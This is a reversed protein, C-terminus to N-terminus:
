TTAQLSEQNRTEDKQGEIQSEIWRRLASEPIRVKAGIRIAPIQGARIARYLAQESMRALPAVEPVTLLIEMIAGKSVLEIGCAALYLLRCQTFLVSNPKRPRGRREGILELGIKEAFRLRGMRIATEDEIGAANAIAADTMGAIYLALWAANDVERGPRFEKIDRFISHLFHRKHYESITARIRPDTRLRGSLEDESLYRFPEDVGFFHIRLPPPQMRMMDTAMDRWVESEIEPIIEKAPELALQLRMHDLASEALKQLWDCRFGWHDAWARADNREFLDHVIQPAYERIARVILTQLEFISRGL